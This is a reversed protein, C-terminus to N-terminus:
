FHEQCLPPMGIYTETLFSISTNYFLSCCYAWHGSPTICGPFVISNSGVAVVQCIELCLTAISLFVPLLRPFHFVLYLRIHCPLTPTLVKPLVNRWRLCCSSSSMGLHVLFPAQAPSLNLLSLLSSGGGVCLPDPIPSIIQPISRFTQFPM